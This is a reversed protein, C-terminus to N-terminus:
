VNAVFVESNESHLTCFRVGAHVSSTFRGTCVALDLLPTPWLVFWLWVLTCKSPQAKLNLRMCLNIQTMVCKSNFGHRVYRIQARQCWWASAAKGTGYRHTKVCRNGTAATGVERSHQGTGDVHFLRCHTTTGLRGMLGYHLSFSPSHIKFM